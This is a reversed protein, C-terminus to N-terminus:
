VTVNTTPHLCTRIKWLENTSLQLIFVAKQKAATTADAAAKAGAVVLGAKPYTSFILPFILKSKAGPTQLTVATYTMTVVVDSLELFMRLLNSKTIFVTTERFRLNTARSSSFNDAFGHFVNITEM